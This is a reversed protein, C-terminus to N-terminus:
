NYISDRDFAEDPLSSGNRPLQKLWEQFDKTREASTGTQWLPVEADPQQPSSDINGIFNAIQTLQTENLKDLTQKLQERLVMTVTGFEIPNSEMM